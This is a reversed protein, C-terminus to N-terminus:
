SSDDIVSNPKVNGPQEKTSTIKDDDQILADRAKLDELNFNWASIGQIYESQSMEEKEEYAMKNQAVRDM